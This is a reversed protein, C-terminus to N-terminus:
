RPLRVILKKGGMDGKKLRALGAPISELGSFVELEPVVLRGDQVMGNLKHGYVAYSPDLVFTKMQVDKVSVNKPIEVDKPLFALAALAAARTTSLATLSAAATTPSVIDIARTLEDGAIQRVEAIIETDSKGDRVVVHAAGLRRALSGMRASTIAIVSLGSQVSLQIAFQGTTTSGGWILIHDPEPRQTTSPPGDPMPVKLWHWLTMAATLGAVGLCAATEFPVSPGLKFATHM